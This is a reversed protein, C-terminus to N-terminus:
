QPPPQCHSATGLLHGIIVATPAPVCGPACDSAPTRQSVHPPPFSSLSALLPWANHLRTKVTFASTYGFLYVASLFVILAHVNTTLRRCPNLLLPTHQVASRQGPARCCGRGPRRCNGLCCGPLCAPLFPPGVACATGDKHLCAAAAGWSLLDLLGAGHAHCRHARRAGAGGSQTWKACPQRLRASPWLFCAGTCRM